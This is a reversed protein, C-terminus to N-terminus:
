PAAPSPRPLLKAPVKATEELIDFLQSGVARIGLPVVRPDRIDGSVRVPVSTVTGGVDGFLPIKRVLENLFGLPAVLVTLESQYGEDMSIWGTAALGVADSVFASKDVVFRGNEFHGVATISRYPFGKEDLKPGGKLVKSVNQMALINGLLAFKTVKGDRSEARVTGELNPILERLKGQTRLDASLDFDGTILLGHETLCRATQELQQKQANLRVAVALQGKPRAEATLPFSIGCLQAQQIELYARQEELTLTAAVPEARREGYQVFNSRLAVRGRVPLPWLKWPEEEDGAPKAKEPAPPPQEGSRELLADVTIGPSDIQADIVPAGDAARTVEGSLAVRQQAWTVSAQRLRLKRGDAQADFREITVPRGLLSALDVSEGALKGTASFREPRDLDFRVSLDGSAGGSPLKAGKLMAGLSASQLSGSFRGQLLRKELRLAVAADSRADKIAARRIDLTGPTWGMDVEVRPGDDFLAEAQLELPRKPGWAARQVSFRVPSKLALRPPADATKWAWALLGDGASGETVTGEIRLEKGYGITASARARADVMELDAREISVADRTVRVSAGSLKVPGPLGEMGVAADSKRIDFLASWRSRQLEFKAQGQARGAVPQFRALAEAASEPVLRRAADIGQTVDLDFDATSALSGSELRYRLSAGALRSSGVQASALQVAIEEAGASAKGSLAVTALQVREEARRLEVNEARLDFDAELRAKGDTRADVRLSAGPLTVGVPSGELVRDLWPQPKLGALDLKATGSMDAYELKASGKLRSFEEGTATLEAELGRSGSEARLELGHLRVPPLEPIRIEIEGDDVEVVSDPALGRVAEVASRYAAVPDSPAEEATKRAPSPAVDLRIVPKLASVSAVEARGRLLPLLQLKVDIREARLSLTGPIEVRARGLAGRPSPLLRISLEDWAIEGHAMQSLKAKLEREVAPTDLFMPVVLAAAVLLVVLAAAGYAGYRLARIALHGGM